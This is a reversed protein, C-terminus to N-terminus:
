YLDLVLFPRRREAIPVKLQAGMKRAVDNRTRSFRFKNGLMKRGLAPSEM